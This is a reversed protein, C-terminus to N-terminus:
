REAPGVGISRLYGRGTDTLELAYGPKRGYPKWNAPNRLASGAEEIPVPETRNEHWEGFTLLVHGTRVLELLEEVASNQSDPRYTPFTDAFDWLAFHDDLLFDLAEVQRHKVDEFQGVSSVLAVDTKSAFNGSPRSALDSGGGASHGKPAKSPGFTPYGALRGAVAKAVTRAAKDAKTADTAALDSRVSRAILRVAIYVLDAIEEATFRRWGRGGNDTPDDLRMQANHFL